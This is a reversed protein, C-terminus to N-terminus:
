HWLCPGSLHFGLWKSGQVQTQVKLLCFIGNILQYISSLWLWAILNIPHSREYCPDVQSQGNYDTNADCCMQGYESNCMSWISDCVAGIDSSHECLGSPRSLSMSHWTRVTLESEFYWLNRQVVYWNTKEFFYWVISFVHSFHSFVWICLKYKWIHEIENLHATNNITFCFYSHSYRGWSEVKSPESPNNNAVFLM